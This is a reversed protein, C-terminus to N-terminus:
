AFQRQKRRRALLGVLGLGSVFLPLAAPVPTNEIVAEFSITDIASFVLDGGSTLFPGPVGPALSGLTLAFATTLDYSGLANAGQVVTLFDQQQSFTVTGSNLAPDSVVFNSLGSLTGSSAGVTFTASSGSNFFEGGGSMVNSTDGTIDIKFTTNTFLGGFAIDGTGTFIYHITAARVPSTSALTLFAFVGSLVAASLSRIRM